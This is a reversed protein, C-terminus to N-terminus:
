IKELLMIAKNIALGARNELNKDNWHINGSDAYLYKIIHMCDLCIMPLGTVGLSLSKPLFHIFDNRLYNLKKVNSSQKGKPVFQKSGGYQLMRNGKIKKYLNMFRDLKEIPLASNANYAKFWEQELSAPLVALGNTGKLALVMFGQLSIHLSIIIWRWRSIDNQVVLLQECCMELASIAEEYADTRMYM